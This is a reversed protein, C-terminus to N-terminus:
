PLVHLVGLEHHRCRDHCQQRHEQQEHRQLPIVQSPNRAPRHLALDRTVPSPTRTEPFRDRCRVVGPLPSAIRRGGNASRRVVAARRNQFARRIMIADGCRLAVCPTAGVRRNCTGSGDGLFRLGDGPKEGEWAM